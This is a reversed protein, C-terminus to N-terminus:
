RDSTLAHYHMRVRRREVAAEVLRQIKEAHAGFDKAPSTASGFVAALQDLRERLVPPLAAKVKAMLSEFQAAFPSDIATLGTEGLAE